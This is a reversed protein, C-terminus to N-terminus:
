CQALCMHRATDSNHWGGSTAHTSLRGASQVVSDVSQVVTGVAYLLGQPCSPM